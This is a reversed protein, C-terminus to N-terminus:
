LTLLQIKERRAKGHPSAQVPPFIGSGAPMNRSTSCAGPLLISIPSNLFCFFSAAGLQEATTTAAPDDVRIPKSLTSASTPPRGAITHHRLRKSSAGLTFSTTTTVRVSRTGSTARSHWSWPRVLTTFTTRPPSSRVWDARSPVSSHLGLAFSM